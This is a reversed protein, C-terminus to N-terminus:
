LERRVAANPCFLRHITHIFIAVRAEALHYFVRKGEKRGAVLGAERLEALQQSLGPQRIGLLDELERVSREGEVLVCCILLRDPNALKKLFVSAEDVNAKLDAAECSLKESM